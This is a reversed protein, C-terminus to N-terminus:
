GPWSTHPLATFVVATVVAIGISTGIRQGTQMIAGSSGAHQPPVESLTLTQNPSIVTGHGAGVFAYSLLLWWESLIGQAVLQVVLITLALGILACYIGAIVVARGHTTVKRAAWNAAFAELAASPLMLMGADLASKGLGQQVYLALLVSISTLGLFYLTVIISGNSFSRTRFVALDVMPNGGRSQYRREWLVWAVVLAVSAVPLLWLWVSTGGEVFPLLLSLVALGILGSGIPDFDRLLGRIGQGRLAQRGILLPREFWALALAIAAVGVPVNVLFTLRWGIEPGGAKILLGGLVPGVGIAVAVTSGYAGFAKGREAGRFYQQIMGIAQPNLLGSGVGQLFRAVILWGPSPALGAGVSCLTFIAVGIVFVGGRGVIDGMRGAAILI